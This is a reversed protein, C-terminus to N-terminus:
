RPRDPAGDREGLRVPLTLVAGDREVTIQVLDGACRFGLVVIVDELADTEERDVRRILDGARLGARQAATDPLVEELRPARDGGFKVGLFGAVPSRGQRLAPLAALIRSWPVVFAVGSSRGHRAPYWLTFLGLLRGELDVAAGGANSDFVPADTQWMGRWPGAADNPHSRSLMGMTLLPAARRAAGFPNGVALVFRGEEFADASAPQLPTLTRGAPLDAKLLAIGLRRDHAVLRAPASGGRPLHVTVSRVDRLGAELSAERPARWLPEVLTGVNALNYLATVIWGDSSVVLGSVPGRWRRVRADVREFPSRSSIPRARDVTLSLVGAHARSGAAGFAIELSHARGTLQGAIPSRFLSRTSRLGAHVARVRDIPVVKGLFQYPTGPEPEVWTSVTGVLRGALDVVPGGNVGRNVGTTVFFWKHRGGGGGQAHPEFTAVIGATATPPARGAEDFATGLAFAFSGVSLADSSGLRVFPLPRAPPPYVQLVSSDAQRDRAIVRARYTRWASEGAPVRVDVDSLWTSIEQGGEVRTRLGADGDSLVLGGASVIVGSSFGAEGVPVAHPICVVTAPRVRAVTQRFEAEVSELPTARAARLLGMGGSGFALTALLLTVLRSPRQM